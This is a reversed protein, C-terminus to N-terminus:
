LVFFKPKAALTDLMRTAKDAMAVRIDAQMRDDVGHEARDAGAVDPLVKRRAIRLPAARRRGAEDLVRNKQRALGPKRDAVHIDRDDAFRRLDARIPLRHAGPKRRQQTDPYLRDVHLG